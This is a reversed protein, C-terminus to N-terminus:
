SHPAGGLGTWRRMFRLLIVMILAAMIVDSLYHGGFALRLLGTAIGIGIAAAMLAPRMPPPALSAPALLWFASATEGSIFSCNTKCTGDFRYWPRFLEHGGFQATQVPRPRHSIDKVVGNVLLGPGLVFSFVLFLMMRKTPGHLSMRLCKRVFMVGYFILVAFPLRLLIARFFDGVGNNALFQHQGYYFLCSTALDLEPWLAFFLATVILPVWLLFTTLKAGVLGTTQSPKVQSPESINRAPAFLATEVFCLAHHIPLLLNLLMHSIVRLNQTIRETGVGRKDDDLM